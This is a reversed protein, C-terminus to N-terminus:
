KKDNLNMKLYNKYKAIKRMIGINSLGLAMNDKDFMYSLNTTMNSIRM